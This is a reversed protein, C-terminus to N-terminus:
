EIQREPTGGAQGDRSIVSIRGDGEMYAIKVKALDDVGQERLQSMLEDETILERRMNQRLMRGERVLPLAPPHVFRQLRLFRYGLWDLAYSWFIITAVLLIGDTISTYDDAMANQAADAVLVVVLLDTIGITGAERKLIMRFLAFLVLYTISGRLIIELLPTSPLLMRGWDVNFLFDMM